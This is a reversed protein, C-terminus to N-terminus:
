ITWQRCWDDLSNFDEVVNAAAQLIPSPGPFCVLKIDGAILFIFGSTVAGCLEPIQKGFLRKRRSIAHQNRCGLFRRKMSISKEWWCQQQQSRYSAISNFISHQKTCLIAVAEKSGSLRFFYSWDPRWPISPQGAWNTRKYPVIMSQNPNESMEPDLIFIFSAPFWRKAVVQFTIWYPSSLM